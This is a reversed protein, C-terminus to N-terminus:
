WTKNLKVLIVLLAASFEIRSSVLLSRSIKVSIVCLLYFRLFAGLIRSYLHKLAKKIIKLLIDGELKPSYISEPIPKLGGSQTDIM